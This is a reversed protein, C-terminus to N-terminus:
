RSFRKDRNKASPCVIEASATDANAACRAEGFGAENWRQESGGQTPAGDEVIGGSRKQESVTPACGVFVFALATLLNVVSYWYRSTIKSFKARMSMRTGASKPKKM